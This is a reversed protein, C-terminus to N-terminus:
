RKRKNPKVEPEVTEDPVPEPMSFGEVTEIAVGAEVLEKAREETVGDLVTGSMITEHTYKDVYSQKVKLTM